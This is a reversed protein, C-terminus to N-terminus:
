GRAAHCNVFALQLLIGKILFHMSETPLDNVLSLHPIHVLPSLGKVRLKAMWQTMRHNSWSRTKKDHLKSWIKFKKLALIRARVRWVCFAVIRASLATTFKSM